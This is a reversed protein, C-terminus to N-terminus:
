PSGVSQPEVGRRAAALEATLDALVRRHLGSEADPMHDSSPYLFEDETFTQPM